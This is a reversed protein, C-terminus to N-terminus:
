AHPMCGFAKMRLPEPENWEIDLTVGQRNFRNPGIRTDFVGRAPDFDGVPFRVYWSKGQKGDLVQIFAHADDGLFVGPIFACPQRGAGDVVKLYWGEFVNTKRNLRHHYHFAEPTWINRIRQFM